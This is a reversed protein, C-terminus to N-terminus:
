DRLVGKERLHVVTGLVLGQKWGASGPSQVDHITSNQDEQSEWSLGSHSWGHSSIVHIMHFLLISRKRQTEERRQRWRARDPAMSFGRSLAVLALCPSM